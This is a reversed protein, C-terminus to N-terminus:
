NAASGGGGAEGGGSGGSGGGGGGIGAAEPALTFVEPPAVNEEIRQQLYEAYEADSFSTVFSSQLTARSTMRSRDEFKLLGEMLELFSASTPDTAPIMDKLPQCHQQVFKKSDREKAKEPWLLKHDADFYVKDKDKRRLMRSAKAAMEVSITGLMQEMMALHEIDDHTQFLATGTYLEM